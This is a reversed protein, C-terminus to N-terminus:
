RAADRRGVPLYPLIRDTNGQEMIVKEMQPLIEELTEIYLRSRTVEPAKRYEALLALFRDAEGQALLIHSEQYGQAQNLMEAATGRAEPVVKDAYGRAELVMRERDQEASTVEAFADKVPDPPQVQQLQVSQIYIGAGYSDLVTQIRQRTSAEIPGRAETLVEDTLRRGVVARIAEQSVDRVLDEVPPKVNFLYDRLSAIRYQVVFELSVLNEDGTIMRKEEPQDEYQAPPGPTLTRFGFEEERTVTVRRIEARELWPAYWHLGPESTRNWTGLRLVVAEEDPEVEYIGRFGYIGIAGMLILLTAFRRALKM